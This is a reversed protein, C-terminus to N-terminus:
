ALSSYIGRWATAVVDPGMHLAVHRTGNQAMERRLDSDQILRSLQEFLSTSDGVRALLGTQGHIVLDEVCGVPTAVAPLGYAMAEILALPLGEVHSPLCFAHSQAYLAPLEEPGRPGLFRIASGLGLASARAQLREREGKFAPSGVFDVRCEIGADRVAALADVLEFCGKDVGVAGVFLLQFPKDGDPCRYAGVLEPSLPYANPVVRSSIGVIDLQRHGPKGLTVIEAALRSVMRMVPPWWAREPTVTHIHVIVKRRYSALILLYLFDRTLGIPSPAIAYHVIQPSSRAWPLFRWLQRIQHTLSAVSLRGGLEDTPRTLDFTIYRAGITEQNTLLWRAVTAVGGHQPPLPSVLGIALAIQEDSPTAPSNM